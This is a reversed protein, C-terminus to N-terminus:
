SMRLIAMTASFSPSTTGPARMTRVTWSSSMKSTGSSLAFSALARILSDISAASLSSTGSTTSTPLPWWQDSACQNPKEALNGEHVDLPRRDAGDHAGFIADITQDSASTHARDHERPVEPEVLVHRELEQVRVRHLLGVDDRAELALRAGDDLELA